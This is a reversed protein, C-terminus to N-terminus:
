QVEFVLLLNGPIRGAFAYGSEVLLTGDYALPGASGGISGGTAAGGGVTALTQATDFQWLVKGSDAAHIRLRGDNGGSLVLDESVTVPSAVGPDCGAPRGQCVGADNPSKWLFEGTRIDLAYL